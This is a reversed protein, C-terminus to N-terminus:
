PHERHRSSDTCELGMFDTFGVRGPVCASVNMARFNGGPRGRIRPSKQATECGDAPGTPEEGTECPRASNAMYLKKVPQQPGPVAAFAALVLPLTVATLQLTARFEQRM